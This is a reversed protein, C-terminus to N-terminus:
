WYSALCSLRRPRGYEHIEGSFASHHLISIFALLWCFYFALLLMLQHKRKPLYRDVLRTPWSQVRPLIPKIRQVRPPHPGQLWGVIAKSVRWIPLRVHTWRPPPPATQVPSLPVVDNGHISGDQASGTGDNVSPTVDSDHQGVSQAYETASMM